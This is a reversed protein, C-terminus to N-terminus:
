EVLFVIGLTLPPSHPSLMRDADVTSKLRCDLCNSFHMDHCQLCKEPRCVVKSRCKGPFGLLVLGNWMTRVLEFAELGSRTQSHPMGLEGLM